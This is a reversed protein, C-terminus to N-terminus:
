KKLEQISAMLNEFSQKALLETIYYLQATTPKHVPRSPANVPTKKSTTTRPKKAM